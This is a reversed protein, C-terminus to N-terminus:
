GNKAQQNGGLHIDFWDAALQVIRTTMEPSAAEERRLIALNGRCTLQALAKRNLALMLEDDDVIILTPARVLPLADYVMDPRANCLVLAGVRCEQRAAAALIAAADTNLGFLGVPMDGMAGTAAAIRRALLDLDFAHYGHANEENTLLQIPATAFGRKRLGEAIRRFAVSAIRLPVCHPLIITGRGPQGSSMDLRRRMPDGSGPNRRQRKRTQVTKSTEAPNPMDAETWLARVAQRAAPVSGAGGNADERATRENIWTLPRLAIM